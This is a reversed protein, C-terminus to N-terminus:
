NLSFILSDVVYVRQLVFILREFWNVNLFCKVCDLVWEHYFNPISPIKWKILFMYFYSVNYKTIFFFFFFDTDGLILFLTLIETKVVIIWCLVPIELWYLLSFSLFVFIICIPFFSLQESKCTVHNHVYLIWFFRTSGAIDCSVLNVCLFWDCKQWSVSDM